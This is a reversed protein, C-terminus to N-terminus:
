QLIEVDVAKASLQIGHEKFIVGLIQPSAVGALNGRIPSCLAGLSQGNGSDHFIDEGLHDGALLIPGHLSRQDFFEAIRFQAGALQPVHGRILDAFQAARDEGITKHGLKM